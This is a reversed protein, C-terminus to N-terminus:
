EFQSFNDQQHINTKSHHGFVDIIQDMMWICKSFQIYCTNNQGANQIVDSYRVGFLGDLSESKLTEITTYGGKSLDLTLWFFVCGCLKQIWNVWM